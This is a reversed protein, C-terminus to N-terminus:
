TCTQKWSVLRVAIAAQSAAHSNKPPTKRTSMGSLVLVMTCIASGSAGRMVGAKRSYACDRPKWMSVARTRLGRSLARTSRATCGTRSSQKAPSCRCVSSCARLAANM